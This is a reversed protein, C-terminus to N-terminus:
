IASILIKITEILWRSLVEDDAINNAQEIMEIDQLLTVYDEKTLIGEQYQKTVDHLETAIRGEITDQLMKQELEQFIDM